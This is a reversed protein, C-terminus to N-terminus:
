SFLSTFYMKNVHVPFKWQFVNGKIPPFSLPSKLCVQFSLRLLSILVPTPTLQLKKWRPYCSTPISHPCLSRPLHPFLIGWDCKVEENNRPCRDRNRFQRSRGLFDLGKFNGQLYYFTASTVKSQKFSSSPRYNCSQEVTPEAQAPLEEAHQRHERAQLIHRLHLRGEQILGM